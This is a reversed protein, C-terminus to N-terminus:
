GQMELDLLDKDRDPARMSQHKTIGADKLTPNDETVESRNAYTLEAMQKIVAIVVISKSLPIRVSIRHCTPAILSSGSLPSM